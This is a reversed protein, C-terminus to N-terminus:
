MRHLKSYDVSISTFPVAALTELKSVMSSTVSVKLHLSSCWQEYDEDQCSFFSGDFTSM